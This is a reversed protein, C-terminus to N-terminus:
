IVLHPSCGMLFYLQGEPDHVVSEAIFEDEFEPWEIERGVDIVMIEGLWDGLTDIERYIGPDMAEPDLDHVMGALRYRLLHHM